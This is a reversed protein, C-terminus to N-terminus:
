TISSIAPLAVGNVLDKSWHANKVCDKEAGALGSFVDAPGIFYEYDGIGPNLDVFNQDVGSELLGKAVIETVTAGDKSRYMGMQSIDTPVTYTITVDQGDLHDGDTEISIALGYKSFLNYGSIQRPLALENWLTVGNAVAGVETQYMAVCKTNKDRQAQQPLTNPNAPQKYARMVTRGKWNTFVVQDGLKGRADSFLTSTWKALGFCAVSLMLFAIVIVGHM